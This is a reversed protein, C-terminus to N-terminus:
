RTWWVPTNPALLASIWAPLDETPCWLQVGDGAAATDGIHQGAVNVSLQRAGGRGTWTAQVHSIRLVGGPETPLAMEHESDTLYIQVSEHRYELVKM